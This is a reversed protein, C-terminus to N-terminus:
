NREERNAGKFFTVAILALYMTSVVVWVLLGAAQQDTALDIAIIRRATDDHPSDLGPEAFTIFADVGSGPITM